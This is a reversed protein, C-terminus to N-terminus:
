GSSRQWAQLDRDLLGALDHVDAAYYDRLRQEVAPDINPRRDRGLRRLVLKDVATLGSVVAWDVPGLRNKPAVKGHVRDYDYYRRARAAALKVRPPWYVGVNAATRTAASDGGTDADLFNVAQVLSGDPDRAVEEQLLVLFQEPAFWGHWRRLQEAYRGYDLIEQSKPHDRQMTGDLIRGLAESPDLVPVFGFVALHYYASVARAVPERLVALLRIRPVHRAVREPVEPKPLYDPRKLGTVDAVHPALLQSLRNVADAGYDPDEFSRNERPLVTIDPREGLRQQLFTSAAKQAGIIAFDLPVDGPQRGWDRVPVDKGSM